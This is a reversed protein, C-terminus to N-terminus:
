DAPSSPSAAKARAAFASLEERRQKEEDLRQEIEGREEVYEGGRQLAREGLAASAQSTLSEESPPEFVPLSIDGSPVAQQLEDMEIKASLEAQLAALQQACQQSYVHEPQGRLFRYSFPSSDHSLSSLPRM